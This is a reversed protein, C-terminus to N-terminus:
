DLEARPLAEYPAELYDLESRSLDVEVAEVAQDVHEVSTVGVIPVTVPEKHLQWALAVQAMTLDKEEALEEVRANIEPGGGQVYPYEPTNPDTQGRKTAQFEDHPRTLYGRALPSWTLVGLGEQACLPHLEREDERYALNYHSQMTAFRELGLRDSAHLATALQYAQMKSAGLYRVDGRRVADDMTRLTEEIPTAEDWKHVQYVDIYDFGLRDLSNALELEIAKRSLGGSNPNREDMQFYVKTNVVFRDRDHEGIVSGIVRESEGESYHNGTDFYTIGRDIAHEIVARSEAEDLVFERWDSSGLSMGGLCIKSVTVGTSGLTTYEM